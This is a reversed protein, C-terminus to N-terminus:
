LGGLMEDAHIAVQFPMRLTIAAMHAANHGFTVGGLMLPPPGALAPPPALASIQRLAAYSTADAALEGWNLDGWTGPKGGYAPPQPLPELGFRPEFPREAFVFFWGPNGTATTTSSRAAAATLAFGYFSLDPEARGSFVPDLWVDTPNKVTSGPGAFAAQSARVILGPWRAPLAGRVLLLLM